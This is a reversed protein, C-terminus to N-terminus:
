IEQEQTMAYMSIAMLTWSLGLERQWVGLFREYFFACTQNARTNATMLMMLSFSEASLCTVYELDDLSLIYGDASAEGLGSLDGQSGM